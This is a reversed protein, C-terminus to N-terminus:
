GSAATFDRLAPLPGVPASANRVSLGALEIIAASGGSVNEVYSATQRLYGDLQALMDNATTVLSRWTARAAAANTMAQKIADAFDMLDAGAVPPEPFAGENFILREGVMSAFRAKEAASMKDLDLKVKDM